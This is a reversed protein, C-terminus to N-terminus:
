QRHLSAEVATADREGLSGKDHQGKGEYRNRSQSLGDTSPVM